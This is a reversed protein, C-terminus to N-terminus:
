ERKKMIEKIRRACVDIFFLALAAIVFYIGTNNKTIEERTTRKISYDEFDAKINQIESERYIGGGSSRAIQELTPMDPSLYRYEPPYNVSIGVSREGISFKYFGADNLQKEGKYSNESLKKIDMRGESKGSGGTPEFIYSIKDGIEGESIISIESRGGATIDYTSLQLGEKRGPDGVAWSVTKAVLDPAGTYVEQSWLNGNDGAFSVVRGFGYRWVALIPDGSDTTLLTRANAKPTIHNFNVIAADGIIEPDSTIFHDGDYIILPFKKKDEDEEIEEMKGIAIKIRQYENPEFYVGRGKRSLTQLFEKNTMTTSEAWTTVKEGIRIAYLNIGRSAIESARKIAQNPMYTIGDSLLIINKSGQFNYLMQEAKYLGPDMYTGGDAYLMSIMRKHEKKDGLRSIPVAVYADYNFVVIGVYDEPDLDEIIRAALSKEMDINTTRGFVDTSSGSIDIVFVIGVKEREKKKSKLSIAPLLREFATDKYNGSEYSNEGGVVVLGNGDSVFKTLAAMDTDGFSAQRGGVPIDDAIVADYDELSKAKVNSSQTWDDHTLYNTFDVDYNKQLFETLPADVNTSILLIEPKKVVNVTKMFINNIEFNDTKDDLPEIRATIHHVGIDRFVHDLEIEEVKDRQKINETKHSENDIYVKLRYEPVADGFNEIFIKYSNETNVIVQSEGEIGTIATDSKKTEPIISFITTNTKHAYSATDILSKGYNNNGDTVLFIAGINSSTQLNFLMDGVATRDQGSTYYVGSEAFTTSSGSSEDGVISDYVRDGINENYMQMSNSGDVLIAFAIKDDHVTESTLYYPQSIAIILLSLFLFRSLFYYKKNGASEPNVSTNLRFLYIYLFILVLPIATLIYPHSFYLNNFYGTIGAPLLDQLSQLDQLYSNLNEPIISQAVIM